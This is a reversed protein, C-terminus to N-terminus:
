QRGDDGGRPRAPVPATGAPGAPEAPPQDPSCVRRLAADVAAVEDWQDARRVLAVAIVEPTAGPYAALMREFVTSAVEPTLHPPIGRAWERSQDRLAARLRANQDDTATRETGPEAAQAVVPRGDRLLLTLPRVPRQEEVAGEPLHDGVSRPAHDGAYAWPWGQAIDEDRARCWLARDAALVIDGTQWHEDAPLVDGTVVVRAVAGHPAQPDRASM